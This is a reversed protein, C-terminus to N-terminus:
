NHDWTVTFDGSADVSSTTDKNYQTETIGHRTFTYQEGVMDIQAASASIPSTVGSITAKCGAFGVTGFDALPLIQNGSSPAEVIWEASMESATATSTQIITDSWGRSSSITMKFSEGSTWAVTATITDGPQVPYTTPNLEIMAEQPYLEYWAYYQTTTTGGQGFRGSGTTVVQQATGIQEVTGDDFGDIGVWEAVMSGASGTTTPVVWTGTVSDVTGATSTEAYGSWNASYSLGLSLFSDDVVIRPSARFDRASLAALSKHPPGSLTPSSAPGPQETLPAMAIPLLVVIIGASLKKM